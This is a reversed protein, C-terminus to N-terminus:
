GIKNNKPSENKLNELLLSTADTCINKTLIHITKQKQKECLNGSTHVFNRLVQPKNNLLLSTFNVLHYQIRNM